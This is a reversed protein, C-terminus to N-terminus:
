KVDKPHIAKKKLALALPEHDAVNTTVISADAPSFLAFVADGLADCQKETVERKPNRAIDKLVKHRRKNEEKDLLQALADRLQKIEPIHSRLYAGMSCETQPNCHTKPLELLGNKLLEIDDEAYCPLPCDITTTLRRRKSWARFIRSKLGAVYFDRLADGVSKNPYTSALQKTSLFNLNKSENALGELATSLKYRHLTGALRKLATLGDHFTAGDVLKNHLYVFNWLPGKRFEKIAFVPLISPSSNKIAASAIKGEPSEKKLLADTLVTTDVFTKM